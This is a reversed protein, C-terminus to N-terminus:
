EGKRGLRHLRYGYVDDTTGMSNALGEFRKNNGASVATLMKNRGDFTVGLTTECMQKKTLVQNTVNPDITTWNYLKGLPDLPDRITQNTNVFPPADLEANQAFRVFTIPQNWADRFVKLDVGGVNVTMQASATVDDIPFLMGRPGKESLALYLLAAAELEPTTTTTNPVSAFTSRPQLTYINAINVPNRAEAFTQPFERKLNAYTWLARARDMDNDCYTVVQAPIKRVENAEDVFAKWQTLGAQQLKTVTQETNSTQQAQRVKGVGIVTLGTLLILITVVILVEILTFGSRHRPRPRDHTHSTMAPTGGTLDAPEFGPKQSRFRTEEQEILFGTEPKSV